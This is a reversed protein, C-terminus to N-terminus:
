CPTLSCRWVKMQRSLLEEEVCAVVRAETRVNLYEKVRAQEEELRQESRQLYDHCHSSSLYRQAESRYFEATTYLRVSIARWTM